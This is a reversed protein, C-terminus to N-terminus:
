AVFPNNAGSMCSILLLPQIITMRVATSEAEKIALCKSWTFGGPIKPVMAPSSVMKTTGAFVRALSIRRVMWAM